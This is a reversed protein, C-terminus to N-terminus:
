MGGIHDLGNLDVSAQTSSATPPLKLSAFGLISLPDHKAHLLPLPTMASNYGSSNLEIAGNM